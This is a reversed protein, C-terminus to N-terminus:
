QSIGREGKGLQSNHANIAVLLDHIEVEQTLSVTAIYWQLIMVIGM